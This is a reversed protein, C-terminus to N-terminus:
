VAEVRINGDKSPAHRLEGRNLMFNVHAHVESFAFSLQHPDLARTFLVPVLDAVSHPKTACAAAILACRGAHHEALEDCREHLGHFPLQHGPLV